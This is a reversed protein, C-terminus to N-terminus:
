DIEMPVEIDKLKNTYLVFDTCQKKYLPEYDFFECKRKRQHLNSNKKKPKLVTQGLNKPRVTFQGNNESRYAAQGFKRPGVTFQGNNEPRYATQGFKKPGATFTVDSGPTM